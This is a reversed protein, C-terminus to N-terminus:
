LVGINSKLILLYEYFIKKTAWPLNKENYSVIQKSLYYFYAFLNYIFLIYIIKSLQSGGDVLIKLILLMRM